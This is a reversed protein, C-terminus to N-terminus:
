LYDERSSGASFIQAYKLILADYFAPNVNASLCPVLCYLTVDDYFSHFHFLFRGVHVIEVDSLVDGDSQFLLCSFCYSM